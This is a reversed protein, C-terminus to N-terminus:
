CKQLKIELSNMKQKGEAFTAEIKNLYKGSIKKENSGFNLVKM